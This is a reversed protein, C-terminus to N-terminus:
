CRWLMSSFLLKSKSQVSLINGLALNSTQKYWCGPLSKDATLKYMINYM